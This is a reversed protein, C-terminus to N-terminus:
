RAGKKKARVGEAFLCLPPLSKGNPATFTLFDGKIFQPIANHPGQEFDAFFAGYDAQSLTQEVREPAVLRHLTELTGPQEAFSRSLCHPAVTVDHAHGASVAKWPRLTDAFPGDM